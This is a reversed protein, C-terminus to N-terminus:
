LAKPCRYGWHEAVTKNQLAAAVAAVAATIEVNEAVITTAAASNAVLEKVTM